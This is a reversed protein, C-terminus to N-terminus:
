KIYDQLSFIPLVMGVVIIGIFTAMVFLLVPEALSVTMKLQRDLEKETDEALRILEQDLQGSQEAIAIIELVTGSFLERCRRLSDGLKEGEQVHKIADNMTDLLRQNGISEGAVRLASLLPVGAALLTGLMRCFRTMAFKALLPGLLPTALLIAEWKRKGADSSLWHKLYVGGILLPLLIFLGYKCMLSSIKVIIITLLPLNAGFDMFIGQFKPIFYVMLFILVAVSLLALVAPYVMAAVVKGKMEKENGQFEAIQSLVLELFGGTEGAKVMAVYVRPFTQPFQGMAGALSTGDIVMDYIQRWQQSAVEDEAEKCLLSLASALPVGARLLGSLQRTFNELAVYSVKKSRLNLLGFGKAGGSTATAVENLSLVDLGRKELALLADRRGNADLTAELSSGDRRLARYKFVGM